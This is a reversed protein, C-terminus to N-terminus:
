WDSKGRYEVITNKPTDGSIGPGDEMIYVSNHDCGRGCHVFIEKKGPFRLLDGEELEGLKMMTGIRLNDAKCNPCQGEQVLEGCDDDRVWRSEWNEAEEPSYARQCQCCWVKESLQNTM